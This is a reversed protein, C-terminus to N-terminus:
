KRKIERGAKQLIADKTLDLSACLTNMEKRTLTISTMDEEKMMGVDVLTQENFMSKALAGVSIPFMKLVENFVKKALVRIEYQAARDVRLGCFRMWNLLNATAYFKTMGNQPLIGRAQERAIDQDIMINYIKFSEIIISKSLNHMENNDRDGFLEGSGQKNKKSQHKFKEPLYFSHSQATYRRSLENYSQTRHRHWESRTYLPCEIKFTVVCHEFPSTHLNKGLFNILHADKKMDIVDKNTSVKAACLVMKDSGMHQIYEVDLAEEGVIKTIEKSM